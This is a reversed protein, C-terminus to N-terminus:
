AIFCDSPKVRRHGVTMVILAMNPLTLKSASAIRVIGRPVAYGIQVPMPASPANRTPTVIRPSCAVPARMMAAVSMMAPSTIIFSLLASQAMTM